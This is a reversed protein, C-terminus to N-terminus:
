TLRTFKIDYKTLFLKNQSTLLLIIANTKIIKTGAWKYATLDQM